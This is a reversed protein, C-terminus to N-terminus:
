DEKKNLFLTVGYIEFSLFLFYPIFFSMVNPIKYEQESLFFPLLFIIALIFKLLTGLVFTNFVSTPDKSYKYNILTYVILTSIVHFLYIHWLPFFMKEADIFHHVLYSHILLLLGSFIVLQITFSIQRKKFKADM